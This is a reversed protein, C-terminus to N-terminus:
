TSSAIFATKIIRSEGFKNIVNHVLPSILGITM